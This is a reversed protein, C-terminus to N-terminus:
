LDTHGTTSIPEPDAPKEPKSVPAVHAPLDPHPEESAENTGGEGGTAEDKEQAPEDQSSLVISLNASATLDEIESDTYHKIGDGRILAMHIARGVDKDVTHTESIALAVLTSLEVVDMDPKYAKLFVFMPISTKGDICRGNPALELQYNTEGVLRFTKPVPSGSALDLGTVIFALDAAFAPRDLYKNVSAADKRCIEALHEAAERVDTHSAGYIRLFIELLNGGYDGDGAIMVAIRPGVQTTKLADDVAVKAGDRYTYTGRTDTALVVFDPGHAAIIVTM